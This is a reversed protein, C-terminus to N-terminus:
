FSYMKAVTKFIRLEAINQSICTSNKASLEFLMWWAGTMNMVDGYM